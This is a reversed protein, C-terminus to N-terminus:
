MEATTLRLIHPVFAAKEWNKLYAKEDFLLCPAGEPDTTTRFYYVSEANGVYLRLVTPREGDESRKWLIYYPLQRDVCFFHFAVEDLEDEFPASGGKVGTKTYSLALLALLRLWAGLMDRGEPDKGLHDLIMHSDCGTDMFERLTWTDSHRHEGPFFGNRKWIQRDAETMDSLRFSYDSPRGPFTTAGIAYSWTRSM